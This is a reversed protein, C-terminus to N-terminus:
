DQDCSELSDGIFCLTDSIPGTISDAEIQWVQTWTTGCKPYTVIWIDDDYVELNYTKKAFNDVFRKSMVLGNVEGEVKMSEENLAIKSYNDKEDKNLPRWKFPYM